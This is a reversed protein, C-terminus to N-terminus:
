GIRQLRFFYLSGFHEQIQHLLLGWPSGYGRGNSRASSARFKKGLDDLIFGNADFVIISVEASSSGKLFAADCGAWFGSFSPPIEVSANHFPALASDQVSWLDNMYLKVLYRVLGTIWFKEIRKQIISFKFNTIFIFFSFYIFNTRNLSIKTNSISIILM